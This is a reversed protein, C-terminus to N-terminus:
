YDLDEDKHRRYWQLFEEAERITAFPSKYLLNRLEESM